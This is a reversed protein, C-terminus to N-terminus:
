IKWIVEQFLACRQTISITANRDPHAHKKTGDLEEGKWLRGSSVVVLAARSCLLRFLALPYSRLLVPSVVIAVVM